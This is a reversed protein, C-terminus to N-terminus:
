KWPWYKLNHEQLTCSKIMLYQYHSYLFTSVSATLAHNWDPVLLNLGHVVYGLTYYFWCLTFRYITNPM